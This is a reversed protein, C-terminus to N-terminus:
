EFVCIKEGLSGKAQYMAMDANKLVDDISQVEPGVLALGISIGVQMRINNFEIPKELANVIREAILLTKSRAKGRDSHVASLLIVFEDGGIRCVVSEKRVINILRKATEVLVADGAFHGFEDNIAKFSDLDLCLIAGYQTKRAIASLFRTSHDLLARRNGLQTLEDLFALRNIRDILSDTAKIYPNIVMSYILPTTTLALIFVDVIAELGPRMLPLVYAFLLM